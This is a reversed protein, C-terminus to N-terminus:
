RSCNISIRIFFCFDYEEKKTKFNLQALSLDIIEKAVIM